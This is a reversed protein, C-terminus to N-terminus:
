PIKLAAALIGAEIVSGLITPRGDMIQRGVAAQRRDLMADVAESQALHSDFDARLSDLRLQLNSMQTDVFAANGPSVGVLMMSDQAKKMEGVLIEMDNFYDVAENFLRNRNAVKALCIQEQVEGLNGALNLPNSMFATLEGVLGKNTGCLEPADQMQPIKTYFHPIRLYDLLRAKMSILQQEWHLIQLAYQAVTQAHQAAQQITQAVTKAIASVDIVPLSALCAPSFLLAALGLPLRKLKM